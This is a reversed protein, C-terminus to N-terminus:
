GYVEQEVGTLEKVAQLSLALVFRIAVGVVILITVPHWGAWGSHRRFFTYAGYHFRWVSRFRQKWGALTGGLHEVHLVKAAPVCYVSRGIDWIRRCYDADIFYWLRPDLDGVREVVDRPMMISASSVYGAQFPVGADVRWNLLESRTAGFRPFWRALWSRKGFFASRVTPLSKVSAQVSGDSNYLASGVAGADPHTELFAALHDLAGPSVETDSNLLYVFRGRSKAIGLNNSYGYGSNKTNVFLRVQPFRERVMEPSGDSSADDMVLVEFPREGRAQYLSALCRSLLERTNYSAVIVSIVPTDIETVDSGNRTLRDGTSEISRGM